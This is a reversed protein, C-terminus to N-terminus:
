ETSPTVVQDFRLNEKMRGLVLRLRADLSAYARGLQLRLQGCEEVSQRIANPDTSSPSNYRIQTWITRVSNVSVRVTELDPSLNQPWIADASAVAVLLDSIDSDLTQDGFGEEGQFALCLFSARNMGRENERARVHANSRDSHGNYAALWQFRDKHRTLERYSDLQATFAVARYPTLREARMTRLEFYAVAAASVAVFFAAIELMFRLRSPWVRVQPADVAPPTSPRERRARRAVRDKPQDAEHRM